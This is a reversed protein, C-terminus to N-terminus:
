TITISYARQGFAEGTLTQCSVTFGYLGPPNEPSITGSIAGTGRVMTLGWPLTGATVSFVGAASVTQSITGVSAGQAFSGLNTSVPALWTITTDPEWTGGGINWAHGTIAGTGRDLTLGWPLLGGALTYVAAGSASLSFSVPFFSANPAERVTGLSGAPTSWVPPPGPDDLPGGIVSLDGSLLGSATDLTVGWPLLGSRVAYTYAGTAAIYASFTAGQATAGLGGSATVWIPATPAPSPIGSITDSVLALGPPLSGSPLSYGIPPADSTALLTASYNAEWEGDPLPSVTVWAPPASAVPLWSRTALLM